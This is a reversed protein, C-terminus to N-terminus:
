AVPREFKVGEKQFMAYLKKWDPNSQIIDEFELYYQIAIAHNGLHAEACAAYYFAFPNRHNNNIVYQFNALAREWRGNRMDLNEVFDKKITHYQQLFEIQEPTFDETKIIGKWFDTHLVDARNKLYGKELCVDLMETGPLPTAIMLEIWNLDSDHIYDLTVQIDEMTEGPFGIIFLGKIFFDYKRLIEIARPVMDLKLPKHIIEKLVRPNGSEIALSVSEVGAKWLREAVEEDIRYVPLSNAFELALNLEQFYDMLELALEKKVFFNDDWIVITNVHYKEVARKVDQKIREKSNYRVAYGRITHSACFCCVFPCGRSFMFPMAIVENLTQNHFHSNYKRFDILTWDLPPIEDLDEILEFQGHIQAALKERTIISPSQSAYAVEDDAVVLGYVGREGEGFSIYDIMPAVKFIEDPMTTPVAGGCVILMGSFTDKLARSIIDLWDYNPCFIASIGAFDFEQSKQAEITKRICFEVEDLSSVKGAQLLDDLIVNFDLIKTEVNAYKQIYSALYLIGLPVEKKLKSSFTGQKKPFFNKKSVSPPVVFM